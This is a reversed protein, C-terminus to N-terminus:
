VIIREILKKSMENFIRYFMENETIAKSLTNEMNETKDPNIILNVSKNFANLHDLTHYRYSIMVIFMQRRIDMNLNQQYIMVGNSNPDKTNFMENIILIEFNHYRLKKLADRTNMAIDTHFDMLKLVSILKERIDNDTECILATKGTEEIFSFPSQVSEDINYPEEFDPVKNQSGSINQNEPEKLDNSDELNITIKNRCKPCLLKATKTKPLKERPIQFKAQCQDCTIKM